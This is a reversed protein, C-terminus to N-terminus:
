PKGTHKGWVTMVENGYDYGEVGASAIKSYAEGIESIKGNSVVGNVYKILPDSKIMRKSAIAQYFKGSGSEVLGGLKGGIYDTAVEKSANELTNKLITSTSPCYTSTSSFCDIAAKIDEAILNTTVIGGYKLVNNPALKGILINLTSKGFDIIYHDPINSPQSPSLMPVESASLSRNDLTKLNVVTGGPITKSNHLLNNHKILMLSDQIRKEEAAKQAAIAAAQREAEANTTSSNLISNFVSQMVMGTVVTNMSPASPQPTVTTRTNNAPPRINTPANVRTPQPVSPPAFYPVNGGAMNILQDLAQGSTQSCIAVLSLALAFHKISLGM